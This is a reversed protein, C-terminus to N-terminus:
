FDPFCCMGSFTNAPTGVDINGQWLENDLYDTLPDSGTARKRLSGNDAPHSSGTNAEFNAFGRAVKRVLAFLSFM